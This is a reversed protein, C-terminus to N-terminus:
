YIILTSVTGKKPLFGAQPLIPRKLIVWSKSDAMDNRITAPSYPAEPKKSLQRSGVPQASEIFDNVTLQLILLQRNTLM